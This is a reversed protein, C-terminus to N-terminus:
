KWNEEDDGSRAAALLGATFIGIAAGVFLGAVFSIWDWDM